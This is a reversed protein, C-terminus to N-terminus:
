DTAWMRLLNARANNLRHFEPTEPAVQNVWNTSVAIDYLIQRQAQDRVMSQIWTVAALREGATVEAVRHLMTTPYLMADGAPLKVPKEGYGTDLVLEGGAYSEPETLFLTLSLDLRMPEPSRQVPNDIHTGYHMGTEYKSLIPRQIHKPIAATRFTENRNLAALVIEEVQTQQKSRMKLELNKKVGKRGLEPATAGGDLFTAQDGIKRLRGTEEPTLLKQLWLLM